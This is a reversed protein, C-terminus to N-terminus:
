QDKTILQEKATGLQNKFVNLCEHYQIWPRRFKDLCVSCQLSMKNCDNVLHDRLKGIPVSDRFKCKTFPCGEILQLNDPCETLIHNLYELYTYTNQYYQVSVIDDDKIMVPSLDVKEEEQM